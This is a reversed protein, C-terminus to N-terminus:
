TPKVSGPELGLKDIEDDSLARVARIPPEGSSKVKKKVAEEAEQRSAIAVNFFQFAPPTKAAGVAEDATAAAGPVTVQILWGAASKKDAMRPFKGQKGLRSAL